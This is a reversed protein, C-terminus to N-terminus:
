RLESGSTDEKKITTIYTYYKDVIFKLRSFYDLTADGTTRYATLITTAVTGTMACLYGVYRFVNAWNLMINEVAMTAFSLTFIFSLITTLIQYVRKRQNLYNKSDYLLATDTLAMIEGSKVPRLKDARRQIKFYLKSYRIQGIEEKTLKRYSPHWLCIWWNKESLNKPTRSGIKNNVYHTKNEQNLIVLYDELDNVDKIKADIIDYYNKKEDKIDQENLRKDEAYDYWWLKMMLTLGLVIFVELFFSPTPEVLKTKIFILGFLTCVVLTTLIAALWQKIKKMQEKM